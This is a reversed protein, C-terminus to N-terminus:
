LNWTEQFSYLLVLLVSYNNEFKLKHCPKMHQHIHSPSILQNGTVQESLFTRHATHFNKVKCLANFQPPTINSAQSEPKNNRQWIGNRNNCLYKRGASRKIITIYARSM